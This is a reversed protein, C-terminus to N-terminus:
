FMNRADDQGKHKGGLSFPQCPVGGAVLDVPAFRDFSVLRMDAQHVRWSSIGPLAEAAANRRLTQCADEDWEVLGVHHFGALHTGLALGGAGAFLEISEM